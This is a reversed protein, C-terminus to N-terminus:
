VFATSHPIKRFFTSTRVSCEYSQSLIMKALDLIPPCFETKTKPRFNIGLRTGPSNDIADSQLNRCTNDSGNIDAIFM